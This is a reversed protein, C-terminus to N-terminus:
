HLPRFDACLYHLTEAPGRKDPLLSYLHPSNKSFKVNECCTAIQSWGRILLITNEIRAFRRPCPFHPRCLVPGSSLAPSVGLYCLLFTKNEKSVCCIHEIIYTGICVLSTGQLVALKPSPECIPTYFYDGAFATVVLSRKIALRGDEGVMSRFLYSRPEHLFNFFIETQLLFAAFPNAKRERPVSKSGSSQLVQVM